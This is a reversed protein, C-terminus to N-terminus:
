VMDDLTLQIDGIVQQGNLGMELHSSAMHGAVENSGHTPMDDPLKVM